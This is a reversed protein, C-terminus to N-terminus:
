KLDREKLLSEVEQKKARNRAAIPLYVLPLFTLLGFGNRITSYLAIGILSGIIVADYINTSKVKKAEQLLEENTFAALEKQEM